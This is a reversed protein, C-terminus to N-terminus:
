YDLDDPTFRRVPTARGLVNALVDNMTAVDNDFGGHTRSSTRSSPGTQGRSYIFEIPLRGTALSKAFKEMGLLPRRSSEEFSNSVLYLLSKCYIAVTDDRELRDTLNYINLKKIKKRKVLPLFHSNFLDVSAAPALLSCTQIQVGSNIRLLSALLHAHLIAGTSHGVVHIKLNSGQRQIADVFAQLTKSGDGRPIFPSRAGHKMERWVARGPKSALSELLRDSWDSLGEMRDQVSKRRGLLVDKLEELLGTDYMFHFPYIGNDKFVSKLSAIRRASAKVNNLGGHAYFLLHKYKTASVVHRATQKVDDLTSWYPAASDFYGDDLHVFHGMIESRPPTKRARDDSGGEGSRTSKRGPFIQPTPRALRFVWADHINQKWDEYSWWALGNRGWELGWSNQVLFGHDNYGVIAFAHGGTSGPEFPIKGSGVKRTHWGRHVKASAYIAGVENLAAHFDVIDLRLRYYAGITNRLADKARVVTLAGSRDAAYQWKTESCVGMHYWGKIAGRCSSGDYDEGEWRDHCKAMEYLMRPSVQEPNGRRRNLQNIVAALGFGTCAGERGQNLIVLDATPKVESALQILSPEYYRDRLDVSDPVANLVFGDLTAASQNQPM